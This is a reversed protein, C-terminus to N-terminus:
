KKKSKNKEARDAIFSGYVSDKQRCQNIEQKEKIEVLESALFHLCTKKCKPYQKECDYNRCCIPLRSM